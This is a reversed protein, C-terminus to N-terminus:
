SLLYRKTLLRFWVLGNAPLLIIIAGMELSLGGLQGRMQGPLTTLRKNAPRATQQKIPKTQMSQM